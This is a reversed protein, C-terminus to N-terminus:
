RRLANILEDIKNVITQVDTATPPDNVTFGLQGVGNSNNSTGSVANAVDAPTARQAIADHLGNFQARLEAATVPSSNVPKTPDFAM